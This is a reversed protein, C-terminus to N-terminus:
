RKFEHALTLIEHRHNNTTYKSTDSQSGDKGMITRCSTSIHYCSRDILEMWIYRKAIDQNCSVETDNTRTHEKRLKTGVHLSGVLHHKTETHHCELVIGQVIHHIGSSLRNLEQNESAFPLLNGIGNTSFGLM